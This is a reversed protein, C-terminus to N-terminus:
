KALKSLSEGAVRYITWDKLPVAGMSVYFDISPQNWDLCTWEFRGCDREVAIQAMKQLFAQGYGKGRHEKQIFLDELYIGAKGVFTSFNHFFVAFGITEGAIEGFLVEAIKKDFIWQKLSAETAVVEDSMREYEALQRIFQLILSVDKETAFRFTLQGEPEFSVIDNPTCNLYNCVRNIVALSVFSNKSFKALTTSSIGLEQGLRMKSIHKEKLVKFLGDYKVSM